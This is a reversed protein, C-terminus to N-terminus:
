QVPPSMAVRERFGRVVRDELVERVRLTGDREGAAGDVRTADRALRAPVARRVRTLFSPGLFSAAAAAVATPTPTAAITAERFARLRM